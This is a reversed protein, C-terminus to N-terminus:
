GQEAKKLDEQLWPGGLGGGGPRDLLWARWLRRPLAPPPTAHHAKDGEPPESLLNPFGIASSTINPVLWVSRPHDPSGRPETPTRHRCLKTPYFRRPKTANRPPSLSGSSRPCARVPTPFQCKNVNRKSHSLSPSSIKTPQTFRSCNPASRRTTRTKRRTHRPIVAHTRAAHHYATTSLPSEAAGSNDEGKTNPTNRRDSLLVPHTHDHYWLPFLMQQPM